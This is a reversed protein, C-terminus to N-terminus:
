AANVKYESLFHLLYYLKSISSLVIVSLMPRVCRPEIAKHLWLLSKSGTGDGKCTASSEHSPFNKIERVHAKGCGENAELKTVDPELHFPLSGRFLM